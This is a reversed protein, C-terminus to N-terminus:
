GTNGAVTACTVTRSTKKQKECIFRKCESCVTNIKTPPEPINHTDKGNATIKNVQHQHYVQLMYKWMKLLESLQFSSILHIAKGECYIQNQKNKPWSRGFDIPRNTYQNEETITKTKVMWLKFSQCQAHEDFTGSAM